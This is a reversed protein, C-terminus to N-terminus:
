DDLVKASIVPRGALSARFGYFALALFFAIVFLSRGAYWRSLDLTLPAYELVFGVFYAIMCALLGFRLLVLIVIAIFVSERAIELPFNEGQLQFMVGVVGAAVVALWRKRLLVRFLFIAALSGIGRTFGFAIVYILFFAVFNGPGGISNEDASIPTMPRLNFWYPLANAIYVALAMGGGALVGVLVDRGVLPDWVKGSIVRTSSILLNPWRRRVYPELAMYAVWVFAASALGNGFNLMFMFYEDVINAVHHSRVIWWLMQICFVAAAIRFAGKRDGRGSRINRRSFLAAGFLVGLAVIAFTAEAINEVSDPVGQTIASQDWPGLTEFYVPKGHYAAAVVQISTTPEATTSGAWEARADFPMPSLWKPDVRTFRKTDLGASTFLAEWNPSPWPGSSDEIQPPIASFKLLRGRPDLTMMAMGSVNMPPNVDTVASPITPLIAMAHPSERYLFHLPGFDATVLQRARQPWPTHLARYRVFKYDHAFWYANDAPLETYGLGAALQRARDVLADPSKNMPALGLITARPALFILLCVAAVVGALCVWATRPKLVREDGAAAVMEPSPTEGAALAAALPDAGPLAAAVQLASTPRKRPDRELCRLIVREVLPDIEKLLSSPSSPTTHEQLRRLEALSSAEFARKGTFLEYLVLGLSYLDGKVSPETGSLQEPAM